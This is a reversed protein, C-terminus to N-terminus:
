KRRLHPPFANCNLKKEAEVLHKRSNQQVLINETREISKQSEQKM